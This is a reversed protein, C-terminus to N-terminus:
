EEEWGKKVNEALFADFIATIQAETPAVRIDKKLPDKRGSSYDTYHFVYAPYRPDAEKNTKWAVFKQLMVKDKAVKKFVKRRLLKSKPLEAAAAREAFPCIDSLKVQGMQRMYVRVPDEAMEEASVARTGGVGRRAGEAEEEGVVRVGNMELERLVRETLVADVMEQPMMRNLEDFTVCGGNLAGFRQVERVADRLEVDQLPSFEPDEAASEVEREAGEQAAADERPEAEDAGTVEGLKADVDNKM